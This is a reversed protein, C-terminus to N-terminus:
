DCASNKPREYTRTGKYAAYLELSAKVGSLLKLYGPRRSIQHILAICERILTQREDM